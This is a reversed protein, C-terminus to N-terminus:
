GQRRWGYGQDSFEKLKTDYNELPQEAIDLTQVLFDPALVHGM